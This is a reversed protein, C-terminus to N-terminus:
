GIRSGNGALVTESEVQGAREKEISLEHISDKQWAYPAVAVVKQMSLCLGLETSRQAGSSLAAHPPRSLHSSSMTAVSM